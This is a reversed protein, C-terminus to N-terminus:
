AMFVRFKIQFYKGQLCEMDEVIMGELQKQIDKLLEQDDSGSIRLIEVENEQNLRFRLTVEAENEEMHIANGDVGEGISTNLHKILLQKNVFQCNEKEAKERDGIGSGAFTNTTFMVGLLAAVIGIKKTVSQIKM